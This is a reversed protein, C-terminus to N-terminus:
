LVSAYNSVSLKPKVLNSILLRTGTITVGLSLELPKVKISIIITIAMIPMRAAM